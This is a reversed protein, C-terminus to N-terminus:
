TLLNKLEMFYTFNNLADKNKNLWLFSGELLTTITLYFSKVM